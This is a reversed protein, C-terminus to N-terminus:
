TKNLSMKLELFSWFCVLVKSVLFRDAASAGSSVGIRGKADIRSKADVGSDKEAIGAM